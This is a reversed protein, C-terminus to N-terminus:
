TKKRTDKEIGKKWSKGFIKEMRSTIEPDISWAGLRNKDGKGSSSKSQALAVPDVWEGSTPKGSKAKQRKKEQEKKHHKKDLENTKGM